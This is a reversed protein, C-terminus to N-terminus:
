IIKLFTFESDKKLRVEVKSRNIKSNAQHNSKLRPKMIKLTKRAKIKIKIVLNIVRLYYSRHWRWFRKYIKVWEKCSKRKRHYHATIRYLLLVKEKNWFNKRFVINWNIRVTQIHTINVNKLPNHDQDQFNIIYNRNRQTYISKRLKQKLNFM